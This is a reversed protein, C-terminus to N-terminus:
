FHTQLNHRLTYTKLLIDLKKIEEAKCFRKLQETIKRLVHLFHEEDLYIDLQNLYRIQLTRNEIHHLKKIEEDSAKLIKSYVPISLESVEQSFVNDKMSGIFLVKILTTAENTSDPSLINLEQPEPIFNFYKSISYTPNHLITDLIVGYINTNEVQVKVFRGIAYDEPLPPNKVRSNNIQGFYLFHSKSWVISGIEM